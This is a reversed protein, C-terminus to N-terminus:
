KLLLTREVFAGVEKRSATRASADGGSSGGRKTECLKRDAASVFQGMDKRRVQGEVGQVNILGTDFDTASVGCGNWVQMNPNHKIPNMTDFGHQVGEYVVLKVDAGQEKLKQANFLCRNANVVTDATGVLMLIPKGTTKAIESCGGYFAVTAAFQLDSGRMMPKRFVEFNSLLGARAGKSFGIVGIRRADILPHSALVQLARLADVTMAAPTIQSQDEATRQFGRPDFSHVLLTAVGKDNLYAAWEYNSKAIGASSHMIVMAPVKHAASAQVGGFLKTPFSIEGYINDTLKVDGNRLEEYSTNTAASMFRIMGKTDTTTLGEAQGSGAILALTAALAINVINNM